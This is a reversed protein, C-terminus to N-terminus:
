SDILHDSLEYREDKNTLWEKQDFNRKPYHEISLFFLLFFGIYIIPTAFITAIWTAFRLKRGTHIFKRFVWRWIFFVPIAIIILFVYVEIGLSLVLITCIFSNM